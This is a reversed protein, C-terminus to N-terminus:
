AAKAKKKAKKVVRHREPRTRARGKSWGPSKGRTQPPAAPTGIRRFLSSLGQLVREPTLHEQAPQWPLPNDTVLDRVLFLQWQALNVPMTRRDCREPEQFRPLTWYLYQKRFRIGPEVPRRYQYWYWLDVLRQDGPAQEPPPRYCMWFPSSPKERELHTEVLIVSFPTDADQRAHLNDWRRLRVKGWCEDELELAADPDGWSEPEKFAFRDGHVRPRGCGSYPGPEGYLVRDRRLRALIGCPEDKLPGLFHHNGYKGDAVILHLWKAMEAWRCHCLHKVQAVGVEVETQRGTIRRVSVPPAWSSGREPVWAPMSHPHGVVISGGDVAPTPSYVYQRDALTKAAPHPWATGDLSFVQPGGKPIQRAFYGEPWKQDQQGEEIAAYASSWKRRFAPSLSLEPFSRIPPSLLLADVLEFQADRARTLGRDYVAQRFEILKTFQEM